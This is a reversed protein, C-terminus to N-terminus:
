EIKILGYKKRKEFAPNSIFPLGVKKKTCSDVPNYSGNEIFYLVESLMDENLDGWKHELGDCVQEDVPLGDFYEGVGNANVLKYSVPAVVIQSDPDPIVNMGVPKGGTRQGVVQVDMHPKLGNVVLESASYSFGSTIFFVRDLDLNNPHSSFTYTTDYEPRDDNYKMTYYEAGVKEKPIIMNAMLNALIINGGPNYRLDIILESVQESKFFSFASLLENEAYQLFSDYVLYGVKKGNIMYIDRYIVANQQFQTKQITITQTNNATDIFELNIEGPENNFLFSFDEINKVDKNDIKKIINSRRLGKQYAVSNEYVLYVRLNGSQDWQYNVGYSLSTGSFTQNAEELSTVFSWNDLQDYVLYDMLDQPTKYDYINVREPIKDNWLYIFHMLENVFAKDNGEDPYKKGPEKECSAITILLLIIPLLISSLKRTM